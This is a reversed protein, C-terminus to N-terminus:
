WHLLNTCSNTRTFHRSIERPKSRHKRQDAPNLKIWLLCCGSAPVLWLGLPKRAAAVEQELNDVAIWSFQKRASLLSGRLEGLVLELLAADLPSGGPDWSAPHDSFPRTTTSTRKKIPQKNAERSIPALTQSFIVETSLLIGQGFLSKILCFPNNPYIM